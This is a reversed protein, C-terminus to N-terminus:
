QSVKKMTTKSVRWEGSRLWRLIFGTPCTQDRKRRSPSTTNWYPVHSAKKHGSNWDEFNEDQYIPLFLLLQRQLSRCWWMFSCMSRCWLSSISIPRPQNHINRVSYSNWSRWDQGFFCFKPYEQMIWYLPLTIVDCFVIKFNTKNLEELRDVKYSRSILSWM